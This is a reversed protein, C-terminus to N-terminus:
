QKTCSMDNQAEKLQDIIKPDVKLDELAKIVKNNAQIMRTVKKDLAEFKDAIVKKEERLRECEATKEAVMDILGKNQAMLSNATEVMTSVTTEVLTVKDSQVKTQLEEVSAKEKRKLEKITFFQTVSTGAFVTALISVILTGIGM